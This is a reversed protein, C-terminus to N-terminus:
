SGVVGLLGEWKSERGTAASSKGAAHKASSPSLGLDNIIARLRMSTSNIIAVAPKSVIAGNGMEYTMGEALDRQAQRLLAFNTAYMEVMTVDVRDLNGREALLGVIHEWAEKADGEIHKPVPLSTSVSPKLVARTV